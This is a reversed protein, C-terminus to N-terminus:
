KGHSAEVIDQLTDEIDLVVVALDDFNVGDCGNSLEKLLWQLDKSDGIERGWRYKLAEIIYNM